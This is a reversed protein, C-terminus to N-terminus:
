VLNSSISRLFRADYKLLRVVNQRFAKRSTKDFPFM